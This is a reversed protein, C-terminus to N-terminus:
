NKLNVDKVKLYSTANLLIDVSPLPQSINNQRTIAAADTLIVATQIPDDYFSLIDTTVRSSEDMLPLLRNTQSNHQQPNYQQAFEMSAPSSFPTSNLSDYHHQQNVTIFYNYNFYENNSFCSVKLNM